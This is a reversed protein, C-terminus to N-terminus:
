SAAEQPEEVPDGIRVCAAARDDYAMLEPEAPLCV